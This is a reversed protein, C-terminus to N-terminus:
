RTRHQWHRTQVWPSGHLRGNRYAKVEKGRVLPLDSIRVAECDDGLISASSVTAVAGVSAVYAERAVSM